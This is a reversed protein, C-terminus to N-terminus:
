DSPEPAADSGTPEPLANLREFGNQDANVLGTSHKALDESWAEQAEVMGARHTEDGFAPLHENGDIVV